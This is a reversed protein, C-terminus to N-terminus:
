SPMATAATVPKAISNRRQPLSPMLWWGSSVTVSASTATASSANSAATSATTFARARALSKDVIQM